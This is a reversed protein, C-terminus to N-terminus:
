FTLLQTYEHSHRCRLSAVPISFSGDETETAANSQVKKVWNTEFAEAVNFYAMRTCTVGM